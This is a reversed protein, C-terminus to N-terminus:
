TESILSVFSVRKHIHLLICTYSLRNKRCEKRETIIVNSGIMLEGGYYWYFKNRDIALHAPFEQLM